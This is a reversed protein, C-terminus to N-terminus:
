FPHLDPPTVVHGTLELNHGPVRPNPLVVLNSAFRAGLYQWIKYHWSLECTM